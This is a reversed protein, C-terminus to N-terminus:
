GIDQQSVCTGKKALWSQLNKPGPFVWGKSGWRIRFKVPQGLSCSRLYEYDAHM